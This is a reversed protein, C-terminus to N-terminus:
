WSYTLGARYAMPGGSTTGSVGANFLMADEFGFLFGGLAMATESGYNGLGFAVQSNGAARPNIVLASMAAGIAGVSDIRQDLTDLRASQTLIEDAYFSNLNDITTAIETTFQGYTVADSAETGNAVNTVRRMETSTGVSIAGEVFTSGVGLAVGGSTGGTAAFVRHGTDVNDIYFTSGSDGGVGIRWDQTPFSATSSTDNFLISPADGTIVVDDYGFEMGETCDVGVCLGGSNDPFGGIVILDDFIVQDAFAATAGFGIIASLAICNTIAFNKMNGSTRRGLIVLASQFRIFM